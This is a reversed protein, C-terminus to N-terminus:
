LDEPLRVSSERVNLPHKDTLIRGDEVMDAIRMQIMGSSIRSYCHQSVYVDLLVMHLHRWHSSVHKLIFTDFFDIPASVLGVKSLIRFPANEQRLQLWKTAALKRQSADVPVQKDFLQQLGEHRMTSVEEAPKSLVRRGDQATFIYETGTVEIAYYSKEVFCAALALFFSCDQPSHRGWWVVLRDDTTTVRDWFDRLAAAHGMRSGLFDWRWWEWRGPANGDDADIPGYSFNDPFPIVTEDSGANQLARLLSGGASDGPTLHLTPM